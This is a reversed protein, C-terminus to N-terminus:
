EERIPAASPMIPVPGFAISVLSVPEGACRVVVEHSPDGALVLADDLLWPLADLDPEYLSRCLELDDKRPGDVVAIRAANSALVAAVVADDYLEWFQGAAASAVLVVEVLRDEDTEHPRGFVQWMGSLARTAHYAGNSPNRALVLPDGVVVVSGLRLAGLPELGEREIKSRNETPM